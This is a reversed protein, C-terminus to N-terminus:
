LGMHKPIEPLMIAREFHILKSVFVLNHGALGDLMHNDFCDRFGSYLSLFFFARTSVFILDSLKRM